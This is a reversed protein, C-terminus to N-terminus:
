TIPLPSQELNGHSRQDVAGVYTSLPFKFYSSHVKPSFPISPHAMLIFTRKKKQKNLHYDHSNFSQNKCKFICRTEWGSVGRREDTCMQRM